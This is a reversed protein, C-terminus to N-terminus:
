NDIPININKLTPGIYVSFFFQFHAKPSINLSTRGSKTTQTPLAFNGVSQSFSEEKQNAKPEHFHYNRLM